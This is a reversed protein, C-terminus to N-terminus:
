DNCPGCSSGGRSASYYFKAEPYQKVLEEWRDFKGVIGGKPDQYVVDKMVTTYGELIRDKSLVIFTRHKDRLDVGTDEFLSETNGHWPGKVNYTVGDDCPFSLTAGGFGQSKNDFPDFYVHAGPEDHDVPYFWAGKRDNTCPVRRYLKIDQQEGFGSIMSYGPLKFDSM